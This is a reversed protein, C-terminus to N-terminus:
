KLDPGINVSQPHIHDITKGKDNEVFCNDFTATFNMAKAVGVENAGDSVTNSSPDNDENCVHREVGNISVMTNFTTITYSGNARKYKDYMPCSISTTSSSGDTSHFKYFKLTFM